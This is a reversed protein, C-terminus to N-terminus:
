CWAFSNLASYIYGWHQHWATTAPAHLSPLSPSLFRPSRVSLKQWLGLSVTPNQGQCDTAPLCLLSLYFSCAKPALSLIGFGSIWAEVGQPSSTHPRSWAQSARTEKPRESVVRHEWHSVDTTNPFPPSAVWARAPWDSPELRGM